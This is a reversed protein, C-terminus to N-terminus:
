TPLKAEHSANKSFARLGLSSVFDAISAKFLHLEEDRFTYTHYKKLGLRESMRVGQDSVCEAFVVSESAIKNEYTKVGKLMAEIMQFSFRHNKGYISYVFFNIPSNQDRVLAFDNLEFDSEDNDLDVIKESGKENFPLIVLHGVMKGDQYMAQFLDPHISAVKLLVESPIHNQEGYIESMQDMIEQYIQSNSLSVLNLMKQRESNIDEM